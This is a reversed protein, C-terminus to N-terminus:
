FIFNYITGLLIALIVSYFTGKYDCIEEKVCYRQYVLKLVIAFVVFIYLKLIFLVFIIIREVEGIVVGDFYNKCKENFIKNDFRGTFTKVFVTGGRTVLMIFASFIIIKDPLNSGLQTKSFVATIFDYGLNNMVWPKLAYFVLLMFFLHLIQDAILSLSAKVGSINHKRGLVIKFYDIIYHSIFIISIAFIYKPSFYFLGILLYFFLVIILHIFLGINSKMKMKVIQSTQFTFDGLVHAIIMFYLFTNESM